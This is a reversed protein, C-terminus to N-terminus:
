RLPRSQIAPTQNSQAPRVLTYGSPVKFLNRDQKAVIINRLERVYGGPLEERIAIKLEPDLWQHSKMITGNAQTVVMEWKETNRGDIVTNGQLTVESVSGDPMLQRLPMNYEIDQWILARLTQGQYETIVEWKQTPRGNVLERALAKCRANEITTCPNSSDATGASNKIIQAQAQREMYQRSEPNLLVSRKNQLDIIEILKTDNKRYEMRVYDQTVFMQATRATQNPVTQMAQASFEVAPTGANAASYDM